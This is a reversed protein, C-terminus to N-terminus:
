ATTWEGTQLQWLHAYLQGHQLLTQHTGQEVIKGSKLVFIKDAQRVTSLRHAILLITQNRNIQALSQQIALETANDVASTAEDFILIAPNRVLARAIAIRQKQGGSLMHGGEGIRTEYGQPLRVIFEHAVATKAAQIVQTQTAGSFAYSINDAVTGAFLFPEQSVFGIQRRLAALSLTRIEQFDTHM